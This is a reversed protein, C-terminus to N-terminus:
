NFRESINEYWDPMEITIQKQNAAGLDLEKLHIGYLKNNFDTYFYVSRNTHDRIIGWQSWKYKNEGEMDRPDTGAPIGFTGLLDQAFGISQQINQPQFSTSQTLLCARIFRSIAGQDGPSGLQRELTLEYYYEKRNTVHWDYPPENTLNGREDTNRYTKMAGDVFEVILNEGHADSIIYHFKTLNPDGTTPAECIALNKLAKEAQEVDRFNGLVYSIVSLSYLVDEGPKPEPYVGCGFSLAAASLGEENLGDSYGSCNGHGPIIIRHKMGIFGYKNKWKIENPLDNEPFFQGRPVFNAVTDFRKGYWEFGRASIVPANKAQNQISINICM